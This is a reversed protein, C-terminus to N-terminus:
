TPLSALGYAELAARTAADRDRDDFAEALRQATEPKIASQNPVRVKRLYQAQFRLTGGRMKVCYAAIQAEIVESLMLGGLVRLNWSDSTIYYLNHHPYYGGKELVPNARSQMDALLIKPKEAIEHFVRDITRHWNSGSRKAISREKVVPHQELYDRLRPYDKLDVPGEPGWPDVLYKGTWSFSGSIIDDRVSLPLLRESEIDPLKGPGVVYVDDAGTAIGIRIRADSEEITPMTESIHELWAIRAPSADPWLDETEFWSPLVAASIGEHQFDQSPAVAWMSFQEAGPQGFDASGSAMLVQGQVGNRIVTIAPYASVSDEFADADHMTLVVDMSFSSVVRKRLAKGYSHHMWRDACIFVCRGENALTNLGVDFFGVFIDARGKMSPSVAQYESLREGLDELRIYPPNGVLVDVQGPPHETLLYDGCILSRNLFTRVQSAPWGRDLLLQTADFRLSELNDTLLEYARFGKAETLKRGHALLSDSLRELMPLVFAGSGAAPEVARVGVLDRDLTYGALDLILDVVWRRTFVEGHEMDEPYPLPEAYSATPM